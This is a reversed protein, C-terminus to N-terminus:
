RCGHRRGGLVLGTAAAVHRPRGARAALIRYITGFLVSGGTTVYLAMAWTSSGDTGSQVGHILTMLFLSFSLAHIARWTRTGLRTKIYFSFAVVALLYFALQGFGVWQPRYSSAAFPVILQVLSYGIYQDGLLVLAHLLAFGLGLLSACRHIELSTLMGPWFRAANSTIGLGALMSLWLLGYAVFASARSIYWYGQPSTGQLSGILPPLVLPALVFALAAGAVLALLMSFWRLVAVSASEDVEENDRLTRTQM